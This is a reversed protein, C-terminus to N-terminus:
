VLLYITPTSLFHTIAMQTSLCSLLRISAYVSPYVFFNLHISMTPSCVFSHASLHISVLTPPCILSSIPQIPECVPLHHVSVNIAPYICLHDSVSPHTFSCIPLRTLLPIYSHTTLYFCPHIFHPFTSPSACFPKNAQGLDCLYDTSSSGIRKIVANYKILDSAWSVLWSYTFGFKSDPNTQRM